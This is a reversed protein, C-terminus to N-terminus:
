VPRRFPSIRDYPSGKEESLQIRPIASASPIFGFHKRRILWRYWNSMTERYNPRVTILGGGLIVNLLNRKGRELHYEHWTQVIPFNMLSFLTPLLCPLYRQGYGKPRISFTSLIPVGDARWKPLGVLM